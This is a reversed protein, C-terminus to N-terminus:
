HVMHTLAQKCIKQLMSNCSNQISKSLKEFCLMLMHSIHLQSQSLYKLIWVHTTYPLKWVRRIAKQWGICFRSFFKSDFDWIHAGYFSTCYSNFLVDLIDSQLFRFKALLKNVSVYFNGLKTDIDDSDDLVQNLMNGLHKSKSM